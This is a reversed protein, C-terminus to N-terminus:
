YLLIIRTTSSSQQTEVERNFVHKEVIATFDREKLPHMPLMQYMNLIHSFPYTYSPLNKEQYESCEHDARLMLHLRAQHKRTSTIVTKLSRTHRLEVSSLYSVQNTEYYCYSSSFGM